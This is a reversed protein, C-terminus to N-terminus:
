VPHWQPPDEKKNLEYIIIVREIAEQLAPNTKSAQLIDVWQKTQRAMEDRQLRDYDWGIPFRDGPHAGIERAYTVGDAKEYIYTAGPKLRGM